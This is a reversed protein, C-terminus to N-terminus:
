KKAGYGHPNRKEGNARKEFHQYDQVDYWNGGWDWGYKIFENYIVSPKTIKGPYPKKRDVFQGANIPLISNKKIYPNILPNIDIARGYSHQSFLGPYGSVSRCNFSSTNNAEMSAHDDNNFFDMPAMQQIPFRHNYLVKFIDVVEEALANNTILVGVHTKNDYGWYTMKIYALEDLNIPCRHHWPSNQMQLQIKKPISRISSKFDIKDNSTITHAFIIPSLFFLFLFFAGVLKFIIISSLEQHMMTIKM